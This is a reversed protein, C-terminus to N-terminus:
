YHRCGTDWEPAYQVEHEPTRVPLPIRNTSTTMCQLAPLSGQNIRAAFEHAEELNRCMVSSSGGVPLREGSVIDRVM